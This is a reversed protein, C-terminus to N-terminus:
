KRVLVLRSEEVVPEFEKERKNDDNDYIYTTLGFQEKSEIMERIKDPFAQRPFELDLVSYMCDYSAKGKNNSFTVVDNISNYGSCLHSTNNRRDVFIRDPSIIIKRDLNLVQENNTVEVNFPAKSFETFMVRSYLNDFQENKEPTVYFSRTDPQYKGNYTAAMKGTEYSTDIGILRTLTDKILGQEKIVEYYVELLPDKDDKELHFKVQRNSKGITICEELQRLIEENKVYEERLCFLIDSYKYM